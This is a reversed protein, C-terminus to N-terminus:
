EERGGFRHVSKVGAILVVKCVLLSIHWSCTNGAKIFADLALPIFRTLGDMADTNWCDEQVM